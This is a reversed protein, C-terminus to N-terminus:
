GNYLRRALELRRAGLTWLDQSSPDARQLRNIEAEVEGLERTLRLSHLTEICSDLDRVPPERETAAKSLLQAEQDSLREMLASPLEGVDGIALARAKELVAQSRLGEFDADELRILLNAATDPTHMLAWLIAKEVDRLPASLARLREVPLTTKRAAATRRIEARIVEETVRAKHALRDAFQDRTAPDPIRAAVALM